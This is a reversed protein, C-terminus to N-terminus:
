AAAAKLIEFPVDIDEFAEYTMHKISLGMHNVVREFLEAYSLPTGDDIHLGLQEVVHEVISAPAEIEIITGIPTHDLTVEADGMRYVKRYKEYRWAIIYGLLEAAQMFGEVDQIVFEAEHRSRINRHIEAESQNIPAKVTVINRVGSDTEIHRLRLIKDADILSNDPTDFRINHEFRDEELEAGHERLRRIIDEPDDVVFKVEVETYPAM